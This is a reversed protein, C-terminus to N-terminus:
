PPSTLRDARLLVSGKKQGLFESKIGTKRRISKLMEKIRDKSVFIKIDEKPTLLKQLEVEEVPKKASAILLPFVKYADENKGFQFRKDDAFGLGTDDDYYIEPLVKFKKYLEDIKAKDPVVKIHYKLSDLVKFAGLSALKSAAQHWHAIDDSFEEPLSAVYFLNSTSTFGIVIPNKDETKEGTRFTFEHRIEALIEAALEEFSAKSMSM